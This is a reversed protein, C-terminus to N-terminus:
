FFFLIQSILLFSQILPLMVVFEMDQSKLIELSYPIPVLKVFCQISLYIGTMKERDRLSPLYELKALIIEKNM